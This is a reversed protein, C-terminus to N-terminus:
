FTAFDRHHNGASGCTGQVSCQLNCGFVASRHYVHLINRLIPKDSDFKHGTSLAACCKYGRQAVLLLSQTTLGRLLTFIIQLRKVLCALITQIKEFAFLLVGRAASASVAFLM